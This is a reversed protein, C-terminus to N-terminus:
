KKPEESVVESLAEMKEKLVNAQQEKHVPSHRKIQALYNNIVNDIKLVILKLKRLFKELFSSLATDLREMPLRDMLKDFASTHTVTNHDADSVRPLARALLYIMVALSVLMIINTLFSYM